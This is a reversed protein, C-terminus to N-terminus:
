FTLVCHLTCHDFYPVIKTNTDTDDFTSRPRHRRWSFMTFLSGGLPFKRPLRKAASRAPSSPSGRYRLPSTTAPPNGPHFKRPPRLGCTWRTAPWYSPSCRASTAFRRFGANSSTRSVSPVTSATASSRWTQTWTRCRGLIVSSAKM